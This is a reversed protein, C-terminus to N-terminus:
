LFIIYRNSLGLFKNNRDVHFQKFGLICIPIALTAYMTTTLLAWQYNNYIKIIKPEIYYGIPVTFLGFLISKYLIYRDKLNNDSESNVNESLMYWDMIIGIGLAYFAGVGQPGYIMYDSSESLQKLFYKLLITTGLQILSIWVILTMVIISKLTWKKRIIHNDPIWLLIAIITSFIISFFADGYDKFKLSSESVLFSSSALAVILTQRTRDSIGCVWVHLLLFLILVAGILIILSSLGTKGPIKDDVFSFFLALMVWLVQLRSDWVPDSIKIFKRIAVM